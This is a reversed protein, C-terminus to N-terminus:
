LGDKRVLKFGGRADSNNTMHTFGHKECVRILLKLMDSSLWGTILAYDEYIQLSFKLEDKM